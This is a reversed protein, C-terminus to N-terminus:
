ILPKHQQTSLMGRSLMFSEIEESTAFPSAAIEDASVGINMANTVFVAPKPMFREEQVVPTRLDPILDAITHWQDTITDLDPVNPNFDIFSRFFVTSNRAKYDYTLVNAGAQNIAQIIDIDLPITASFQVGQNRSESPGGFGSCNTTYGKRHLSMVAVRVQPELNEVYTGLIKEEPTPTPNTAIRYALEQRMTELVGRRLHKFSAELEPTTEVENAEEANWILARHRSEVHNPSTGLGYATNSYRLGALHVVDAEASTFNIKESM